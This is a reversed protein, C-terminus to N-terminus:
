WGSGVRRVLAALRPNARSHGAQKKKKKAKKAKGCQNQVVPKYADVKGNQGTFRVIARRKAKKAKCLDESNELLGYKKGGKMRLEFKEVPADPVLEFTNRIGKNPGSDVKGVLTVRIQGNLEAVLAPLKYGYGGVLYVPGELPAELLPTWARAKGYVSSAPCNGALLVPKTCTKNLNGQDLFEGHPLNVQARAIGAEGPRATLVATLAPHGIRKTAGKLSIKLNPRFPLDACGGVQFRNSLGDTAGQTSTALVNVSMPECSTPNLTFRSRDLNIRIDRIRLPVGELIHPLPDTKATIQATEPDVFIASRVVVTGLDFPGAVAPTIAVASLPAGKYPGALYVKGPVYYPNPGAGAGVQTTGIQSAAPCSPDAQEAKGSRGGAAAIESDSCYPVGSLYATLGKPLSLSLADLEQAGDPRTVQFSFPTAAGAQTSQSGANLGLAFPEQAAGAACGTKVEFSSESTAIEDAVPNDPDAASWPTLASTITKPGCTAPTALSAQPGGFFHLRIHEVPLQPNNDFTATLRGTSPDAEVKGPLKVTIGLSKGEEITLYLAFNTGFPNAKQAALYLSGKLKKDVPKGGEEIADGAIDREVLLPSEAEVTGIKSGDPCEPESTDFHIPNPAPFGTGILGIQEETCAQLGSAASANLTLGEPLTVVTKKLPPTMLSAQENSQPISLDVKAGTPSDGAESEPQFALAPSRPEPGNGVWSETLAQCGTLFSGPVPSAGSRRGFYSFPGAPAGAYADNEVVQEPHEYSTARLTTLPAGGACWSPNNLVPRAGPISPACKWAKGFDPGPTLEVGNACVVARVAKVAPAGAVQKSGLTIGYDGNSRLKAELIYPVSEVEFSLAAPSGMEPETNFLPSAYPGGRYAYPEATKFVPNPAAQGGIAVDIYGIATGLPCDPQGVASAIVARCTATNQLNASFGPPLDAQISKFDGGALVLGGNPISTLNGEIDTSARFPHGGAQSYATGAENEDNVLFSTVGFPVPAEIVTPDDTSAAPAGGGSVTVVPTVRDATELGPRVHLVIPPFSEGAELQSSRTCTVTTTDCSWGSAIIMARARTSEEPFGTLPVFGLDDTSLNQFFPGEEQRVLAMGPPLAVSVSVTGGALTATATPPNTTVYRSGNTAGANIAISAGGGNTATVQCQISQFRDAAVLTYKFSTETPTTLTAGPIPIGNRLWQYSFGTPANAWTGANCTLENGVNATGTVTGVTTLSPPTTGPAPSVVANASVATATSESNTAIVRCQLAKGEDAAVLEYSQFTAGSIPTGNRLWEYGFSPSNAWTGNNCTLTEGVAPTGSVGPNVSATPPLAAALKVASVAAASGGANSGTVQCQIDAGLDAATLPYKENTAGSIPGGNRLWQRAFSPSGTWTGTACTLEQGVNATGTVTPTGPGPPATAPQPAILRTASVKASAGEASGLPGTATVQCQLVKGEDLGVVTYTSASAGSIAVGNRLWKYALTATAPGGTCSLKQGVESGGLTVAGGVITPGTAPISSPAAPTPPVATFQARTAAVVTGSANTATVQCQIAEETEGPAITYTSGTAGPIPAGNALWVFSMDPWRWGFAPICTLQSGPNGGNSAVIKFGEYEVRPLGAGGAIAGVQRPTTYRVFAGPGSAPRGTVKCQVATGEDAVTTAYTNGTAGSIPAGNRLWQYEFSNAGTWSGAECTLTTGAALSTNTVQISYGNGGSNRPFSTGSGSYPSVLGGVGYLNKHVIGVGWSPAAPAPAASLAVLTLAALLSLPLLRAIRM